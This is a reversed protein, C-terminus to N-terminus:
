AWDPPEGKEYFGQFTIYQKVLGTQDDRIVWQLEDGKSGDLRVLQGARAFTLRFTAFGNGQGWNNLTADHCVAAMDGSTKINWQTLLNRTLGNQKVNLRQGNALTINNGWKDADFSGSDEVFVIIRAIRLITGSSPAVKFTVPTSSGDVAMNLTGTGDGGTSFRCNVLDRISGAPFRADLVMSTNYGHEYFSQQLGGRSIRWQYERPLSPNPHAEFPVPASM